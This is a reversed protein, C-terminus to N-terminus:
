KKTHMACFKHRPGDGSGKPNACRNGAAALATCRCDSCYKADKMASKKCDSSNCPEKKATTPKAPAKKVVKEKKIGQPRDEAKKKITTTTTTVKKVTVTSM